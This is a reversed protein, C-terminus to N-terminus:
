TRVSNAPPTRSKRIQERIMDRRLRLTKQRHQRAFQEALDSDRSEIAEVLRRHEDVAEAARGELFLTSTQVQRIHDLLVKLSQMLRKNRSARCVAMHFEGTLTRLLKLDSCALAETMEGLLAHLDHMATESANEAALRAAMGELAERVYFFETLDEESIARVTLGARGSAEVLGEAELKRLAERVPTRSVKLDIALADSLLRRGPAFEGEVICQRLVEYVADATTGADVQKLRQRISM